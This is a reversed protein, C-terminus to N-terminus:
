FELLINKGYYKGLHKKSHEHINKRFIKGSHKEKINKRTKGFNKEQINKRLSYKKWNNELINETCGIREKERL